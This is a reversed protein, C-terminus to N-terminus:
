YSFSLFYRRNIFVLFRGGGVRKYPIDNFSNATILSHGDQQDGTIGRMNRDVPHVNRKLPRGSCM